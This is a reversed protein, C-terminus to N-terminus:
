GRWRLIVVEERLQEKTGTAFRTRFLDTRVFEYGLSQAIEALLQGTRIMVRLYSAQDGVVYALQADPRLVSRLAALHRAMGGFYLKTVRGYLKEFGSTKGLEIRRREIRNAIAQIEPYDQIWRDDDDAKYVNRTNSRILVKKFAQLDAKTKIFGLIVSELRTIRTYDKENPYPPSTIVADVSQPPLVKDIGRADALYARTPAFSQGKVRRLNEAMENIKAIWTGIIAADVTSKGVGVEPGFRLNSATFVLVNAIALLQHRYVKEIKYKELCELLVLVKHLPIPSISGSLILKNQEPSLQHLPLDAINGAFPVSDEIGQQRLLDLALEAVERSHSYLLDPDVDWDIKVSTAFHAFPNAEIGWSPIGWLKSEVLTTGTGCFPDLIVQKENLRFNEIYDRVLHPPYSLVFRYWDHFARDQEDIKNLNSNDKTVKSDQCNKLM